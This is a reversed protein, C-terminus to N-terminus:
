LRSGESRRYATEQMWAAVGGVVLAGALIAIYLWRHTASATFADPFRLAAVIQLAYFCLFFPLALRVRRWDAERLAWLSAAGITLIWAAVAGAPLRPLPWPWLGSLVNSAFVLVLGTLLLGAGSLALAVKVWSLLPYSVAYERSGGDREQLWLSVAIIVPLVIYIPLWVWAALRATFPGDSLHFSGLDRLTVLATSLAFVLVAVLIIRTRQWEKLRLGLVFTPLAALYGAGLFAASLPSRITWAFFDSTRHSFIFLSIGAFLSLTLLGWFAIRTVILVPTSVQQATQVM